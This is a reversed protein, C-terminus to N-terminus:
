KAEQLILNLGDDPHYTWSATFDGWTAQQRGDLARTGSIQSVVADPVQVQEFICLLGVISAGEVEEAAVGSVVMSTGDDGIRVDTTDDACEQKAAELQTQSEGGAGLIAGILAIVGAAAGASGIL